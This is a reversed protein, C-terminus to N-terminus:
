YRRPDHAGGGDDWDVAERGVQGLRQVAHQALLGSLHHDDVVARGLRQAQM